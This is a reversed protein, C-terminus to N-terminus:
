GHGSLKDFSTAADRDGFGNNKAARNARRMRLAFTTVSDDKYRKSMEDGWGTVFLDDQQEEYESSFVQSLTVIRPRYHWDLELYNDEQLKTTPKCMLWARDNRACLSLM